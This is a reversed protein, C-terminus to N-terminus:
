SNPEAKPDVQIFEARAEIVEDTHWCAASHKPAYEVLPPEEVKCQDTAFACRPHFKCGPPPKILNPPDGPISALEDDQQNLKPVSRLLGLTYPHLPRYFMDNVSGIEVIKGAYTTAVRDAMEAALALDHSIFIISFGLREQMEKLVDIIARQTLIDLATTPEDLIVIQPNLLVGLALLTRQRMGGSLEHPYANFVRQPDLRVLKFLELTREEIWEKDAKGHAAATDMFQDRIKLVPNFANQAGQFVMACDYWRFLRLDKASMSLVDSTKGDRTYLVKGETVEANNPLMRILSLSLTTKGCGSEGILALAEGKRLEFSIDSTAQVDGRPTHYVISIDEVKLIIDDTM